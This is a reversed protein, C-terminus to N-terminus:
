GTQHGQPGQFFLHALGAEVGLERGYYSAPASAYILADSKVALGFYNDADIPVRAVREALGDWDISKDKVPEGSKKDKDAAKEKDAPKEKADDDKKSADGSKLTVEDSQLPFPNKVDKRLALVFFGSSRNTAFDFEIESIQPHFEHIARYYLYEGKPDWVPTDENFLGNTVRRLKNEELSWIYIASFGSGSKDNISFALYSSGPSWDYDRIDGETSHAIEQLKKDAVTVIWLRGDKDSFAIRKGDPSWKPDFRFAKGGTTIQEPAASGDQAVTWIEEEGSADSLFAIKSGDPSWVPAKDHAGPSHTLNRTPGHEVPATFIDGRAAFLVREAKPSLDADEIM